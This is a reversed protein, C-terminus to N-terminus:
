TNTGNGARAQLWTLQERLTAVESELAEVRAVLALTGSASEDPAAAAQAIELAAVDIPGTFLQAYRSERRGPERPLKVM